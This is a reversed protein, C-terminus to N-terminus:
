AIVKVLTRIKEARHLLEERSKGLLTLHGMKRYPYTYQKGYLHVFTLPMKLVEEIGVFRARGSYGPEGLLNWMLAYHTQETPGLPLNLIARLHQEYQSTLNAEITHHGSNHPRPAIENVYLKADKTLFLEVALLGVHNLGEGIAVAIETAERMVHPPLSAPAILYDLRNLEPHFVMEVPPYTKWEGNRNRALLIAIEKEVDIKAEVVSPADFASDLDAPSELIVVGKGDYGGKRLKQVVPFSAVRQKLEEKNEVLFFPATPIGHTQYFQKQKGKDQVIRVVSSSPFVPKGEAELAEMADANVHEIELTLLDVNRGFRLVEHFDSIDGAFFETAFKKCPANPSRDMVISQINWQLAKQILMKGLQGGGLIGLRFDGQFPNLAVEGDKHFAM